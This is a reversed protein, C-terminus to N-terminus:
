ISQLQMWPNKVRAATQQPVETMESFSLAAADPVDDYKLEPQGHLENLFMENWAGALLKVNGIQAQAALPRWRAQKSDRAQVGLADIGALLRTIRLSERIGAGGPEIEWRAGYRTKTELASRKDSWTVNVLVYDLDGPTYREKSCDMVYYVGNVKRIKVSATWDPETSNSIKVAAFDWARLEVGGEPVADVIEFWWKNFIKGASPKIKWNGGRVPDGLLREREITPLAQLKALYMPDRTMLIKNDYLTGPIYTVSLPTQSPYRVLLEDRSDSWELHDVDRVFWRVRGARQLDVYGDDAIWWEIFKALFSDPDPNCTARCYGGVGSVSRNRGLLFFFAKEYFTELQDFGLYAVQAGAYKVLDKEHQLHSFEIRAGSKWKWYLDGKIGEGGLYPYLQEAEDWLGGPNTIEPFTRRLILGYYAPMHINRTAEMLLGWTKGGGAAGGYIAIDAASSLFEEQRGQQPRIETKKEAV